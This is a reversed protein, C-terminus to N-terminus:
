LCRTRTRLTINNVARLDICIRVGGDKKGVTVVSSAWPSSSPQIIGLALMKDLEGRM